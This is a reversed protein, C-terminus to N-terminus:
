ILSAILVVLFTVFLGSLRTASSQSEQQSPSSEFLLVDPESGLLHNHTDLSNFARGGTCTQSHADLYRASDCNYHELDVTEFNNACEYAVGQCEDRCTGVYFGQEDCRKFSEYCAFAQLTANCEPTVGTYCPQVRFHEYLTEFFCHAENDLHTYNEWRWTGYPVLGACFDLGEHRGTGTFAHCNERGRWFAISYTANKGNVSVFFANDGPHAARTPIEIDCMWPRDFYDADCWVQKSWTAQRPCRHNRVTVLVGEGDIVVVRWRMSEPEAAISYYFDYDWNDDKFSAQVNHNPQLLEFDRYQDVQLNYEVPHDLAYQEAPQVAIYLDAWVLYCSPIWLAVSNDTSYVDLDDFTMTACFDACGTCSYGFQNEQGQNEINYDIVNQKQFPRRGSQMRMGPELLTSDEVATDDDDSSATLGYIEGNIYAEPAIALHGCKVRLELLGGTVNSLRVVAHSIQEYYGDTEHLPHVRYYHAHPIANPAIRNVNYADVADYVPTNPALNRPDIEYDILYPFLRFTTHSWNSHERPAARILIRYQGATLECSNVLMFDYGSEREGFHAWASHRAPLGSCSSETNAFLDPAERRDYPNAEHRVWGYVDGNNADTVEIVLRDDAEFWDECIDLTYMQYMGPELEDRHVEGLTLSKVDSRVDTYIYYPGESVVTIFYTSNDFTCFDYVNVSTTGSTAPTNFGSADACNSWAFHDRNVYVETPFESDVLVRFFSGPPYVDQPTIKFRYFDHEHPCADDDDDDAHYVSDDYLEKVRVPIKEVTLRYDIVRDDENDAQDGKVSLYLNDYGCIYEFTVDGEESTTRTAYGVDDDNSNASTALIGNSLHVTVAESVDVDEVRIRLISEQPSEVSRPQVRHFNYEGLEVSDCITKNIPLYTIAWNTQVVMQYKIAHLECQQEEGVVTIWFTHPIDRPEQVDALISGYTLEIVCEDDFASTCEARQILPVGCASDDIITPVKGSSLYYSVSGQSVNYLRVQAYFKEYYHADQHVHPDIDIRFIQYNPSFPLDFEVDNSPGNISGHYVVDPHIIPVVPDWREVVIETGRPADAWIYFRGAGYAAMECSSVTFSCTTSTDCRWMDSGTQPCEDSYGVTQNVSAVLAGNYAGTYAQDPLRMSFRLVAGVNMSEIDVAFQQPQRPVPAKYEVTHYCSPSLQTININTQVARIEYRAPLSLDSNRAPYTTSVGRVGIYYNRTEFICTDLFLTCCNNTMEFTTDDPGSVQCSDINCSSPNASTDPSPGAPSDPRIFAEVEGCIACIQVSLTAGESVNAARYRYEQYEYPYVVETL